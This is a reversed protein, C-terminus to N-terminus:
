MFTEIDLNNQGLGPHWARGIWLHWLRKAWLRTLLTGRVFFRWLQSAPRM